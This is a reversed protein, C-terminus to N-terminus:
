SRRRDRLLEAIDDPLVSRELVAAEARSKEESGTDGTDEGTEEVPEIAVDAGMDVLASPQGLILQCLHQSSRTGKDEDRPELAEANRDELCEGHSGGDYM